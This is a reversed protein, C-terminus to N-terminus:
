DPMVLIICMFSPSLLNVFVTGLRTLVPKRPQRCDTKLGPSITTRSLTSSPLFPVPTALNHLQSHITFSIIAMILVNINSDVILLRSHFVVYVYNWSSSSHKQGLQSYQLISCCQFKDINVTVVAVILLLTLLQCLYSHIKSIM